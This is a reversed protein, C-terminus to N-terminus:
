FQLEVGAITLEEDTVSKLPILANVDMGPETKFIDGLERNLMFILQALLLDMSCVDECQGYNECSDMVHVSKIMPFMIDPPIEGLAVIGRDAELICDKCYYIPCSCGSLWLM